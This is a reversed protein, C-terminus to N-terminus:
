GDNGPSFSSQVSLPPFIEKPIKMKKALFSVLDNIKLFSLKTIQNM